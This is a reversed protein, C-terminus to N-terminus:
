WIRQIGYKDMERDSSVMALKEALAQVALLRDFPDRHRQPLFAVAMAHDATIPLFGINNALTETQVFQKFPETFQLKGLGHKIAMEWVSAISLMRENTADEIAARAASGLRPDDTVFWLFAQTDLLLKM